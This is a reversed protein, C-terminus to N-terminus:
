PTCNSESFPFTDQGSAILRIKTLLLERGSVYDIRLRIHVQSADADLTVAVQQTRWQDLVTFDTEHTSSDALTWLAYSGGNVGTDTSYYTFEITDIHGPTAFVYDLDLEISNIDQTGKWGEDTFEGDNGVGYHLTWGQQGTTFDFEYCHDATGCSCDSDVSVGSQQLQRFGQLGLGSAYNKVATIVDAHAYSVNGIADVVASYNGATVYGDTKIAGYIACTLNAWLTSDAEATQYDGLTGGAIANYMGVAAFAFLDLVLDVGPVLAGLGALFDLKAISGAVSNTAQTMAQKLIGGALWTAINCAENDASLNGPNPPDTPIVVGGAATLWGSFCTPINDAWGPVASWTAGGDASTELGCADTFRVQVQKPLCNAQYDGWNAVGQWTTGGDVSFALQCGDGVKMSVLPLCLSQYDAWGDVENWTTGGDTSSQLQCDNVRLQLQGCEGTAIGFAEVLENAATLTDQLAADNPALWAAPHCLQMLAGLIYPQWAASFSVCVTPTAAWDVGPVPVREAFSTRTWLRDEPNYV